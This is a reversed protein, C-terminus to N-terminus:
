KIVERLELHAEVESKTRWPDRMEQRAFLDLQDGHHKSGPQSSNGYGLLVKARLPTGFEIAAYYTDGGLIKFKGDKDPAFYATRFVGFPDGAAGNGPLDKGAYRLRMVDGWPVDATGHDKIVRQVAVGLSKVAMAADGLGAPTTTASDLRWARAFVHEKAKAFYEQVWYQFLVAGRSEALAQRDWKELVAAGAKAQADGSKAVAALLDPLLRDALEMHTSLKDRVLEDFTISSDQMLMHASRQPRFGMYQPAMYRPFSDPTFVMPWTTTWPPDNANQLWGSPPDAAHPLQEYSLYSSWLTSSSDGRVPRSWDDFTGRSRLPTKGGFFYYIHGDHDAYMVNFFPLHLQRVVGEFEGLNRARGMKWWAESALPDDLGAVRIAVASGADERLIPGHVSRKVQLTEARFSGGALKVKIVETAVDFPKVAGDYLYGDGKKTLKFEDAGDQTNVTHSWGMTDNFGIAIVPMGVLTAGYLNMESTVLHAEYFTFLDSWQLHPNQLLMAHGSASRKPAIAWMNSGSGPMFAMTKPLTMQDFLMFGFNIVRAGHGLVDQGSVPLVAKVSDAIQDPHAAAYANIGAAFADINARYTPDQGDYWAKAVQPVGMTRMFRDNPLDQEGWYEAARGRAEGYLKLILNAHSTAQAYGFAKFLSADDTAFVHPVGWTDWLIETATPASPACATSLVAAMWIVRKSM